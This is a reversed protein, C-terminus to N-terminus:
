RSAGNIPTSPPSLLVQWGPNLGKLGQNPAVGLLMNHNPKRQTQHSLRTLLQAACGFSSYAQM